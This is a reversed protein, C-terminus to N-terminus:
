NKKGDRRLRRDRILGYIAVGTAALLGVGGIDWLASGIGDVIGGSNTFFFHRSSGSVSTQSAVLGRGLADTGLAILAGIGTRKWFPDKEKRQELDGVQKALEKDLAAKPTAAEKTNPAETHAATEITM